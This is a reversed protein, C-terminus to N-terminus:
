AGSERCESTRAYVAFGNSDWECHKVNNEERLILVVWQPHNSKATYISRLEFNNQILDLHNFIVVDALLTCAGRATTIHFNKTREVFARGGGRKVRCCWFSFIDRARKYKRPPSKRKIHFPCKEKQHEAWFNRPLHRPSLSNRWEESHESYRGWGWRM